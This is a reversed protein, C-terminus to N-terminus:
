PIDEVFDIMVLATISSAANSDVTVAWGELVGARIVPGKGEGDSSVDDYLMYWAALPPPLTTPAAGSAGLNGFLMSYPQAEETGATTPLALCTAEAAADISDAKSPTIAPNGTAPATTVRVLDVGLVAAVSAANMTFFVRRIRVTKVATAAHHITAFQKRGAAGFANTLYFPRAATRFVARYTQVKRPRIAVFPEIGSGVVGVRVVVNGAGVIVTSLRARISTMADVSASWMRNLVIGPTLALTIVNEQLGTDIRVAGAPYWTTGDDTVEFTIVGATVTSPVQISMNATGYGTTTVTVATNLATASTWTATTSAPQDQKETVTPLASVSVPMTGAMLTEAGAPNLDMAVIQTKVGARDKDRIVDGGGSTVQTNDAM